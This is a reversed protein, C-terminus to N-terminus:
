SRPAPCPARTRCRTGASSPTTTPSCSRSTATAAGARCACMSRPAWTAPSGPGATPSSRTPPRSSSRATSAAAAPTTAASTPSPPAGSRTPSCRPLPLDAVRRPRGHGGPRLRRERRLVRADPRAQGRPLVRPARSGGPRGQAPEHLARHPVRGRGRPARAARSPGQRGHRREGHRRARVGVSRATVAAASTSQALRRVLAGPHRDPVAPRRQRRGAPARRDAGTSDHCGRAGSTGPLAQLDGVKRPLVRMIGWAGQRFRRGTGNYYLYDGARNGEGGAGGDLVATYRESIGYHLADTPTALPKGDPGTIATRWDSATATWACPTSGTPGVRQDHAARVPRGRYARPLPTNPDGHRYSSLVAAVSRRGAGPPRGVARRAPEADLGHDPQRRDDVAGDRPLLRPVAGPALAQRRTSTSSRARTSRARGDQPRPLHLRGARRHAPRRPRQGLRPHRGRPRALLHQGAPRRSVLPVPRVRHRRGRRRRPRQAAARDAHADEGGTSRRSRTSRSTRGERHRRRALRARASVEDVSTLQITRTGAAAAGRRARPRRAQLAPDVPRLGHRRQRRRLGPRRVPRPPHAPQLEAAAWRGRPEAGHVLTVAVCDGINGRIALPEPAKRGALVDDKDKHSRRLDQGDADRAQARSRSRRGPDDRRQVDADARRGPLPRGQPQRVPEAHRRRRTRRRERRPVARRLAREPRVAPAPRHAPAAAPLGPRGNVPNFLIKPATASTATSRAPRHRPRTARSSARCTRGRRTTRPSASTAAPPRPRDHRHTWDWVSPTQRDRPVGPPPLKPKIWAVLNDKTIVTGDPMTHGILGRRTSRSRRARRPRAAPRPRAPPHRLRALLEVHGRRLARRHPLPLPLRRRGAPRRRRRGRDRPRVVRGPGFSQSDLRSSPPATAQADQRPRHRRLRFTSDARPQLRWRIGGGHLHYVHFMESGAHMIRIKTPDGLYGRPMPTAPDGFTYSNYSYRSTTPRASWATCSRSPATTSRAPAPATRPRSRTSRRCCTATATQSTTAERRRDRPLDERGRPVVPRRRAQDIAEWGSELPGGTKMDLYTSGAPEVALAGFLGHAVAQRNGPAPASTTPARSSSTAAPVYYRYTRTAGDASPRPRTTASRTARPAPTSPSGTSTCATTAAPPTTPSRSRSATASTPASSAAAPDPRRAPRDLGQPHAGACPAVAAVQDALVYM